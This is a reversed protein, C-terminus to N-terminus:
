RRRSRRAWALHVRALNGLGQVAPTWHKCAADTDMRSGALVLFVGAMSGVTGMSRLTSGEAAAEVMVHGQLLQIGVAQHMHVVPRYDVQVRRMPDAVQHEAQHGVYRMAAVSANRDEAALAAAVVAAVAAVAAVVVRHSPDGVQVRRVERPKHVQVTCGARIPDTRTSDAGAAVRVASPDEVGEGAVASAFAVALVIGAVVVVAVVIGALVTDAVLVVAAV